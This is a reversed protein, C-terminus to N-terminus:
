LPINGHKKPLPEVKKGKLFRFARIVKPRTKRAEIVEDIYGHKAAQFPSAFKAVYERVLEARRKEPDAAKALETKYLINVAGQPGMVAIEACPWAFNIDGRIHKSSMVDYAGGYAKRLVVTVLPVSARCYAYLLKAGRRIIGGHEQELGPWYGPVDVLTLLPINFADCFNIFRAGKESADIDLAGSLVQPNNAVVGVSEGDLRIFGCVINRAFNKHVEFFQHGDAIEWVVAHVQYSKKAELESVRELTASERLPDDGAMNPKATERCNQPLYDLLERIQRFCDQESGAVFQAVGSLRSHTDAGGLSEFDCTEGTAAKVVGPGTIFMHSTGDVMIIFDTLAPSYVAGGACPGLIASIQPVFGSARVNRYFIEAYGGLSEVGEQIRAGGSDCLGIVPVGATVAMDMVKCIKMAHALGLSGGMVTFDQSYICVLRGNIRAFGTVVGDAALYKKDLGFDTSKTEVLADVEEFSDDDVLMDIRERAAMKGSAKQAALREPGGGAEALARKDLM